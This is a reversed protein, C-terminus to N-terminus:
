ALITPLHGLQDFAGSQLDPVAFCRHNSDMGAWWKISTRIEFKSTRNRFLIGRFVTASHLLPLEDPEYGSPRRNLDPRRLWVKPHRWATLCWVKVRAHTPEFGAVGAVIKHARLEAPYLTQSRILLGPTRIGGPAGCNRLGFDSARLGFPHFERADSMYPSTVPSHKRTWKFRVDSMSGRVEIM